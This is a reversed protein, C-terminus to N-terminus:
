KVENREEWYASFPNPILFQTVSYFVSDPYEFFQYDNHVIKIDVPVDGMMLSVKRKKIVADPRFSKITSHAYETFDKKLVCIIVKDVDLSPANNVIQRGLEGIVIFDMVCRDMLDEVEFLAKELQEHTFKSPLSTKM